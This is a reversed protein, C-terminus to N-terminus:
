TRGTFDIQSYISTSSNGQTFLFIYAPAFGTLAVAVRLSTRFGSVGVWAESQSSFIRAGLTPMSLAFPEYVSSTYINTWDTTWAVSSTKATPYALPDLWPNASSYLRFFLQTTAASFNYEQWWGVGTQLDSSMMIWGVVSNVLATNIGFRCEYRNGSSHGTIATQLVAHNPTPDTNSGSILQLYSSPSYVAFRYECGAVQSWMANGNPTINNRFFDDRGTGDTSGLYRDERPVIVQAPNYGYDRTGRPGSVQELGNNIGRAVATEGEPLVDGGAPLALDGGANLKPIDNAAPTATAVEDAGGHQHSAAHANPDRPDGSDDLTADTVVANLEALTIAPLDAGDLARFTPAADAGSAPGALVTNAAQTLTTNLYNGPEDFWQWAAGDYYGWQETNSAFATMGAVLGDLAEINAKTDTYDVLPLGLVRGQHIM